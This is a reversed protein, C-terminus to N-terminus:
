LSPPPSPRPRGTFFWVRAGSLSFRVFGSIACIIAKRFESVSTLLFYYDPHQFVQWPLRFIMKIFILNMLLRLIGATSCRDKKRLKFDYPVGQNLMRNMQNM